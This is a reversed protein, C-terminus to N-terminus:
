PVGVADLTNAYDQVQGRELSMLQSFGSEGKFLSVVHDAELSQGRPSKQTTSEASSASAIEPLGGGHPGLLFPLCVVRKENWHPQYPRYVAVKAGPKRRVRYSNSFPPLIRVRPPRPNM